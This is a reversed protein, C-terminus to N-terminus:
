IFPSAVEHYEALHFVYVKVTPSVVGRALLAVDLHSNQPVHNTPM